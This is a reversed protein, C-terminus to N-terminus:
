QLIKKESFFDDFTTEKIYSEIVPKIYKSVLGVKQYLKEIEGPTLERWEGSKLGGVTLGAFRTRKLHIVPHGIAKMMRKIQRKKGEHICIEMLTKRGKQRLIKAEGKVIVGPNIAIGERLKEIAKNTVYGEVWAQYVKDVEYKPHSLRYSLEGDNTMLLVGETNYDLRGVPFLREDAGVLDVVTKRNRDDEVSTIVGAPKNMLIYKYVQPPKLLKGDLFIKDKGPDVRCGLKKIVEKNVVVRGQTIVANAKRRAAVGCLALYRNM